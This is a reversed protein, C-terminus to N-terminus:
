QPNNHCEDGAGAGSTRHPAAADSTLVGAMAPTAGATGATRPQASGGRAPRRPLSTGLGRGGAPQRQQASPAKARSGQASPEDKRETDAAAPTTAAAAASDGAAANGAVMAPAATQRAAATNTADTVAVSPTQEASPPTQGASSAANTPGAAAAAEAATAAPAPSQRDVWGGVPFTGSRGVARTAALLEATTVGHSAAM